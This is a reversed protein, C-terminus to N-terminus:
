EAAVALAVPDTAPLQEVEIESIFCISMTGILSNALFNLKILNEWQESPMAKDRAAAASRENIEIAYGIMRRATEAPIKSM